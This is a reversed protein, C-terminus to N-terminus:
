KKKCFRYLSLVNKFLNYVNRNGRNFGLITPQVGLKTLRDLSDGNNTIFFLNYNNNKKLENLLLYVHKSVGCAYNFDPSIHLINLIM